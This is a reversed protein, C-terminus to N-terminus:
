SRSKLIATLKPYKEDVVAEDWGDGTLTWASERPEMPFESGTSNEYATWAAYMLSEFDRDEDSDSLDLDALTEPDRLANDYVEKGQAILWARFYDFSDDSCGGNLIYCAAWLENTYSRGMLDHLTKDFGKIEDAPLQTLLRVLVDLQENLDGGSVERSREILSWFKAEDM